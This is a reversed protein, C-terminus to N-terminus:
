PDACNLDVLVEMLHKSESPSSARNWLRIDYFYVKMAFHAIETFGAICVFGSSRHITSYLTDQPLDSFGHYAKKPAQEIINGGSSSDEFTRYAMFASDLKLTQTGLRGNIYAQTHRCPSSSIPVFAHRWDIARVSIWVM